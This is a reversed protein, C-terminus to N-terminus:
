LWRLVHIGLISLFFRLLRLFLFVRSVWRLMRIWIRPLSVLFWLLQGALFVNSVWWLLHVWLFSVPFWLLFLYVPIWLLLKPIAFPLINPRLLM